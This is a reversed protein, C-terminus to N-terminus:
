SCEGIDDEWENLPDGHNGRDALNRLRVLECVSRPFGLAALLTEPRHTLLLKAIAPRVGTSLWAIRSADDTIPRVSQVCLAGDVGSFQPEIGRRALYQRVGSAIAIARNPASGLSIFTRQAPDGKIELEYRITQRYDDLGCELYKDYVRAFVDSIRNGIYLTSPQGNNDIKTISLGPRKTKRYQNAETAHNGIYTSVEEVVKVDVALDIRTCHDALPWVKAFQDEALWSSLQIIDSDDRRGYTLEGKHIGAYGKWKWVREDNGPPLGHALLDSAYALFASRKNPDTCTLTLWDVKCSYSSETSNM